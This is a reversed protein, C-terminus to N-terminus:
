GTTQWHTSSFAIGNVRRSIRQGSRKSRPTKTPDPAALRVLVGEFLQTEFKVPNYDHSFVSRNKFQFIFV